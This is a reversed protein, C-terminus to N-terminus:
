GGGIFIALIRHQIRFKGTWMGTIPHQHFSIGQLKLALRVPTGPSLVSSSLSGTLWGAATGGAATGGAATGGAGTDSTSAGGGKYVKIDIHTSQTAAPCYLYLVGHELMPQFGARLEEISKGGEGPFWSRQQNYVASLLMDQLSQLKTAAAAAGQFSVALRGTVPDYSKVTLLPLLLSISHFQLDSDSYALPAMLKSSRYPMGLRVKGTEFIQLPITLEM